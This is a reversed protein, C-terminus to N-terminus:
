NNELPSFSHSKYITFRHNSPKTGKKKKKCPFIEDPFFLDFVSLTVQLIVPYEFPKEKKKKKEYCLVTINTPCRNFRSDTEFPSITMSVLDKKGHPTRGVGGDGQM